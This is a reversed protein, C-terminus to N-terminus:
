QAGGLAFHQARLRIRRTHRRVPVWLSAACGMAELCADVSCFGILIAVELLPKMLGPCAVDGSINLSLADVFQVPLDMARVLNWLPAEGASVSARITETVQAFEPESSLWSYTADEWYAKERYEYLRLCIQRDGDDSLGMYDLTVCDRQDNVYCDLVDVCPTQVPLTINMLAGLGNMRFDHFLDFRPHSLPDAERPNGPEYPTNIDIDLDCEIIERM